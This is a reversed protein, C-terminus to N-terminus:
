KITLRYLIYYTLMILAINFIYTSSFDATSINNALNLIDEEDNNYISMNDIKDKFIYHASKKDTSFYKNDNDNIKNNISQIVNMLYNKNINSSVKVYKTELYDYIYTLNKYKKDVDDNHIKYKEDNDDLTYDFTDDIIYSDNYIISSVLKYLYLYKKYYIIKKKINDVDIKPKSNNIYLISNYNIHGLILLFKAIIKILNMDPTDIDNNNDSFDLINVYDINSLFNLNIETGGFNNYFNYLQEENIKSDLILKFQYPIVYQINEVKNFKFLNYIAKDNLNFRNEDFIFFCIKIIKFIKLFLAKDFITNFYKKYDFALSDTPNSIILSPPFIRKFIKEIKPAELIYIKEDKDTKDTTYIKDFLKEYYKKFEKNNNIINNDLMAFNLNETINNFVINDSLKPNEISYDANLCINGSLISYFINAIIYHHIYSKKSNIIKKDYMRIYPTVINNLKNLSRKYSCDLCKYIVNKNFKTNFVIFIIIFIILIIFMIFPQLIILLDLINPISSNKNVFYFFINVLYLVIILLFIFLGIGSLNGVGVGVGENLKYPVDYTIGFLLDNSNDVDIDSYKEYFLNASNYSIDATYNDDDNNITIAPIESTNDFIFSVDSKNLVDKYKKKNDKYLKNADLFSTNNDEIIQKLKTTYINNVYNADTSLVYKNEFIKLLENYAKLINILYLITNKYSFVQNNEDKKFYEDKLKSSDALKKLIKYENSIFDTVDNKIKDENIKTKLVNDFSYQLSKNLDITKLAPKTNNRFSMVINMLFYIIMISFIYLIFLYITPVHLKSLENYKIYIVLCIIFIFGFVLCVYLGTGAGEGSSKFYNLYGQEDYPIYRVCIMYIILLLLILNIVGKERFFEVNDFLKYYYYIYIMISVIFTMIIYTKSNFIDNPLLLNYSNKAIQYRDTEAECYINNCKQEM